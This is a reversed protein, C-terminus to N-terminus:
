TNCKKVSTLDAQRPRRERALLSFDIVFFDLDVISDSFSMASLTFPHDAIIPQIAAMPAYRVVPCSM